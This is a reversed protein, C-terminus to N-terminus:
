DILGIPRLCSRIMVGKLKKDFGKLPLLALKPLGRLYQFFADAYKARAKSQWLRHRGPLLVAGSRGMPFPNRDNPLTMHAMLDLREVADKM